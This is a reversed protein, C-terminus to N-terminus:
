KAWAGLASAIEAVDSIEGSAVGVVLAYADDDDPDLEMGNKALFVYTALWALRQNGDVLPHNRALSHLLAAAKTMLDPYADQGLVSARPRHVAADLLGIDRVHVPGGAAHRAIKLAQETTLYRTV